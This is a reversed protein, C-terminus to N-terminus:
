FMKWVVFIQYYFFILYFFIMLLLILQRFWKKAFLYNIEWPLLIYNYLSCYIPLRGIFIGSTVMSLLYIGTTLLAMNASYNILKSKSARIKEGNFIAIIAPISYVIVRLPNTGNDEMEHYESVVNKYQTSQLANEMFLEFHNMFVISILIVFIILMTRHNAFNGLACPLIILLLLASQHLTSALIVIVLTIILYKLNHANLLYKLKNENKDYLYLILPLTALSLTVALFQRLGNFMWAYYDASAVFLFVSLIYSDSYKRFFWLLLIGQFISFFMLYAYFNQGLLIHLVCSVFQFGIDKNNLKIYYSIDGWHNPMLLYHQIYATTDGVYKRAGAFLILPLFVLFAYWWKVRIQKEDFVFEKQKIIQANGLLAMSGLWILIFFASNIM